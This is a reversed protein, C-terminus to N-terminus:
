YSMDRWKLYFESLWDDMSDKQWFYESYFEGPIKDINKKNNGIFTMHEKPYHSRRHYLM